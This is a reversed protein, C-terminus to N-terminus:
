EGRRGPLNLDERRGDVSVPVRITRAVRDPTLRVLPEARGGRPAEAQLQDGVLRPRPQVALEIDTRVALRDLDGPALRRPHVRGVRDGPVQAIPLEDPDEVVPTGAQGPQSHIVRHTGPDDLQGGTGPVVRVRGVRPKTPM